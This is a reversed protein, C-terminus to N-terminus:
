PTSAVFAGDGTRQGPMAGDNVVSYAVFPNTGAVRKVRAYGQGVGPAYQSLITGFQRWAKANLIVNEVTAVKSGDIGNFLEIIFSDPNNDVEGTNVLALNTRNEANQQLGFLWASSTAAFGYPIGTYFLGFRGGGGPSSTRAGIFVSSVDSGDVTAFLAGAYSGNGIGAVGNARMWQIINPLILQRGPHVQMVFSTAGTSTQIGDAVFSFRITKIAGSWNTVVLESDFATTEVIVPLTIGTKGVLSSEVLPPVFSGDSNAQDNIVAYAYYPTSGSIREVRVYGNTLSLGEASLVGSIQAFEGPGLFVDPLTQSFLSDGSFVTARLVVNGETSANQLALNSRDTANQRLGCLYSVGTLATQVPIGSYALGARGNAAVTTTRVTVAAESASNLGSFLISLTGGANQTTSIPFGLSRLYAIADPIIRQEGPALTAFGTSTGGGFAARYSLTLNATRNSRNTLILESTFYSNNLGSSSLVIPVFLRVSTTESLKSVFGDRGGGQSSAQFPTQTPFNTSSTYGTIYANGSADLAIGKAVDDGNGGLYTSYIIESATPDIKLVFADHTGGRKSAQVPFVRHFNDSSTGGAIHANGQGDVAIALAEVGGSGSVFSSYVLSSGASALKSVFGDQAGATVTRQFTGATTPFNASQTNGTVYTAGTGDVTVGYGVDNGSGGLYTSFVPTNGAAALRTVFVDSGGANAAQYASVVPFNTSSTTGSLTVRNSSDVVIDYAEDAGAGGLYSSYALSFGGSSLKAVFADTTGGNFSSQYWNVVPFNLSDTTGTVYANGSSDAAVARCTDNGTGGLYTSFVLPAGSAALKLVFADTLGRLSSQFANQLPINPSSTTGAVYAQGLSDVFIGDALDDGSGGFYTSYVLATGAPNIKTIFADTQGRNGFLLANSTPFTTSQTFGAIYANGASDLSIDAGEDIGNAGGLYTSYSLVPDIILPLRPDYKGTITFGFIDAQALDYEAPVEKRMGHVMQYVVPRRQVLRHNGAVIVLSGSEERRVEDAGTVRMRIVGPNIGPGCVFDYELQHQNGYFVQDIGPYVEEYVVREYRPIGTHWGKPDSGILYHSEGPLRGQARLTPAKKNGLLEFRIVALREGRALPSSRNVQESPISTALSLVVEQPTFYLVWGGSGRTLYRVEPSTQGMNPEFSLPLRGYQEMVRPDSHDSTQEKTFSKSLPKPAKISASPNLSHIAWLLLTTAILGMRYYRTPKM